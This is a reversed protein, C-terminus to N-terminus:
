NVPWVQVRYFRGGRADPDMQEASEGAGSVLGGVPVWDSGELDDRGWLQYLRGPKATWRVRAGIGNQTVEDIRLLSAASVPSTGAAAESANPFGDGDPDAGPGAAAGTFLSFHRRQFLDDLGDFNADPAAALVELFGNAFALDGGRRVALTRLGPPAGRAVTITAYIVNLPPTSGFPNSLYSPPGVTIGAGSIEFTAGSTPLGPGAVGVLVGGSGQLVNGPGNQAALTGNTSPPVIRTIRFAPADSGVTFNGTTEEDARILVPTNDMPTFSNAAGAFDPALDSGVLLRNLSIGGPPDLPTARVRYEGPPLNAMRYTGDPRTATCQAVNGDADEATVVAGFVPGGGASVAGALAGRSNGPLAYLTRAAAIEDATLGAEVTVGPLSRAFMTAGGAPSHDLGLFHGIEHLATAEIFYNTNTADNLDGFWRHQFSNFVIDAATLENNAGVSLYTLAVGRNVISDRGGNVLESKAFFILNTGDQLNIDPNAVLGGEEFRIGAGPIAEWQAFAARLNDRETEERGANATEVPLFYRVARTARNVSNTPVEAGTGELHWRRLNGFGDLSGVFGLAESGGLLPAGAVILCARLNM